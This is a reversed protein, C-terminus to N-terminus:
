ADDSTSDIIGEEELADDWNGGDGGWEADTSVTFISVASLRNVWLTPVEYNKM